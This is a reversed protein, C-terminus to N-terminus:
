GRAPSFGASAGHREAEAALSCLRCRRLWRATESERCCILTANNEGACDAYRAALGGLLMERQEPGALGFRRLAKLSHRATVFRKDRAAKIFLPFTGRIRGEPDGIALRCM